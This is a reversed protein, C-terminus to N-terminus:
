PWPPVGDQGPQPYGMRIQGPPYGMRVLSMSFFRPSPYGKSFFRPSPYGGPTFLCTGTFVTGEGDKPHSHYFDNQILDCSLQKKELPINNQVPM